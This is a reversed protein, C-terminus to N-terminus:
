HGRADARADACWRQNVPDPMHHQKDISDCIWIQMRRDDPHRRWYGPSIPSDLADPAQLQREVVLTQAEDANICNPDHAALGANDRCYKLEDRLAAQHDAYWTVTHYEAGWAGPGLGALMAGALFLTHRM